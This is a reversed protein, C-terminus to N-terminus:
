INSGLTFGTEKPQFSIKPLFVQHPYLANTTRWNEQGIIPEAVNRRMAPVLFCPPYFSGHSHSEIWGLHFRRGSPRRPRVLTAAGSGTKCHERQLLVAGPLGQGRRKHPTDFAAKEIYKTFLFDPHDTMMSGAHRLPTSSNSDFWRSVIKDIM